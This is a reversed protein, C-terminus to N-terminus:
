KASLRNMMSHGPLRNVVYTRIYTRVYTFSFFKRVMRVQDPDLQDAVHRGRNKQKRFYHVATVLESRSDEWHDSVYDWYKGSRCEDIRTAYQKSLKLICRVIPDLNPARHISGRPYVPTCPTFEPWEPKNTLPCLPSGGEARASIVVYTEQVQRFIEQPSEWPQDSSMERMIHKIGQITPNPADELAVWFREIRQTTAPSSQSSAPARTIRSSTLAARRPPAVPLESPQLSENDM